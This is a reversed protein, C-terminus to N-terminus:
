GVTSPPVAFHKFGSRIKVRQAGLVAGGGRGLFLFNEDARAGAANGAARQINKVAQALQHLLAADGTRDFQLLFGVLVRDAHFLAAAVAKAFHTRQHADLRLAPQIGLDLQVVAFFNNIAGDYAALMDLAQGILLVAGHM